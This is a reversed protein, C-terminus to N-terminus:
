SSIDSKHKWNHKIYKAQITNPNNWMWRRQWRRPLMLLHLLSILASKEITYHLPPPPSWVMTTLKQNERYWMLAKLVSLHRVCWDLATPRELLIQCTKHFQLFDLETWSVFNHCMVPHGLLLEFYSLWDGFARKLFHPDYSYLNSRKENLAKIMIVIRFNNLSEFSLFITMMSASFRVNMRLDMEAGGVQYTAACFIISFIRWIWIKLWFYRKESLMSIDTASFRWCTSMVLFTHIRCPRPYYINNTNSGRYEESLYFLSILTSTQLPCARLSSALFSKLITFTEGEINKTMHNKDSGLGIM